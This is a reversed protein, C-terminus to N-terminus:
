SISKEKEIRLDWCFQKDRFKPLRVATDIELGFKNNFSMLHLGNIVISLGNVGKKVILKEFNGEYYIGIDDCRSCQISSDKNKRNFVCLVGYEV